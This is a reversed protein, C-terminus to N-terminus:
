VHILYINLSIIFDKKIVEIYNDTEYFEQYWNYLDTIAIEKSNEVKNKLFEIWVSVV